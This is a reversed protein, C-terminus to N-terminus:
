DDTKIYKISRLREDIHTKIDKVSDLIDRSIDSKMRDNSTILAQLFNSFENLTKINDVNNAELRESLESNTEREKVLEEKIEKRSETINKYFLGALTAVITLLGTVAWWLLSSVTTPEVITTLLTSTLIM